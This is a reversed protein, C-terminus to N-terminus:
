TANHIYNNSMGILVADTFILAMLGMGIATGSIITRRKNRFLNRWALKIYIM